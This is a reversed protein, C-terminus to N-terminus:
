KPVVSSELAAGPFPTPAQVPKTSVREGLIGTFVAGYLEEIPALAHGALLRHVQAQRGAVRAGGGEVPPLSLVPALRRGETDRYIATRLTHPAQDTAFATVRVGYREELRTAHARRLLAKFKAADGQSKAVVEKAVAVAWRAEELFQDAKVPGAIAHIVRGDPACFYTAVNGGQKQNRQTIRFTGVRQFSSVFYKNLFEGVEPKALANV